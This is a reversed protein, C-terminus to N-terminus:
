VGLLNFFSFILPNVSHFEGSYMRQILAFNETNSGPAYFTAYVINLALVLLFVPQRIKM